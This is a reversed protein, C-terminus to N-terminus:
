RALKLPDVGNPFTEKDFLFLAFVLQLTTDRLLMAFFAHKIHSHRLATHGIGHKKNFELYFMGIIRPLM